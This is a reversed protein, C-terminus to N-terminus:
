GIEWSVFCHELGGGRVVPVRLPQASGAPTDSPASRFDRILVSISLSSTELM